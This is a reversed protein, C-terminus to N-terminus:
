LWEGNGGGQVEQPFFFTALFPLDEVINHLGEKSSSM